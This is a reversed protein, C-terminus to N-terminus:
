QDGAAKEERKRSFISNVGAMLTPAEDWCKLSRGILGELQPTEERFWENYIEAVSASSLQSTWNKSAEIAAQSHKPPLNRWSRVDNGRVVYLVGPELELVKGDPLSLSENKNPYFYTPLSGGINSKSMDLSNPADFNVGLHHHFIDILRPWDKFDEELLTFLVNKHSFLEIVRMLYKLYRTFHYEYKENYEDFFSKSYPYSFPEQGEYRTHCYISHHHTIDHLYHSFARTVPHRLMVVYKKHTPFNVIRQLAEPNRIYSPTIDVIVRTRDDVKYLEKYYALGKDFNANFFLTEKPKPCAFSPSQGLFSDLATTGCKEFGLGILHVRNQIFSYKSL